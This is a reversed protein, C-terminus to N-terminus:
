EGWADPLFRVKLGETILRASQRVPKGTRQAVSATRRSARSCSGKRRTKRPSQNRPCPQRGAGWTTRLSSAIVSATSEWISPCSSSTPNAPFQSSSSIPSKVLNPSLSVVPKSERTSLRFPRNILRSTKASWLTCMSFRCCSKRRPKLDIKM